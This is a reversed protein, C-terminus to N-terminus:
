AIILMLQFCFFAKNWKSMNLLKLGLSCHLCKKLDCYKNKLEILAQSELANEAKISLKEWERIIANKEPSLDLLFQIAKDRYKQKDRVTGYYYVFQVVTNIIIIRIAVAGLKKSSSTSVSDFSFHNEWYESAHADFISFLQDIASCEIIESFMNAHKSMLNAFQSIRITPFNAPRLRMFKWLHTEMPILDYKQKLFNYENKLQIPYEDTFEQKLLGAQGMLLAELQMLNTSHKKLIHLPLM